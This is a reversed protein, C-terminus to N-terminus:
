PCPIICSYSWPIPMSTRNTGNPYIWTYMLSASWEAYVETVYNTAFESKFQLDAKRTMWGYTPHQYHSQSEQLTVPAAYCSYIIHTIPSFTINVYCNFQVRKPVGVVPLPGGYDDYEVPFGEPIEYDDPDYNGAQPTYNFSAPIQVDIEEEEPDPDSPGGGNGGGGGGDHDDTDEECETYLYTWDQHDVGGFENFYTTVYYWSWCRNESRSSLKGDNKQKRRRSGYSSLKNDKYKLQYLFNGKLDFFKYEGNDKVKQNNLLNQTTKEKLNNQLKGGEPLFDMIMSWKLKKKPSQVIILNLIHSKNVKLKENIVDELPIIIIRDGNTRLEINLEDYKLQEHVISANLLTKATPIKHTLLWGDIKEKTLGFKALDETANQIDNIPQDKKCSFILFLLFVSLLTKLKTKM